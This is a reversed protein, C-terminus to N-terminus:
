LFWLGDAKMAAVMEEFDQADYRDLRLRDRQSPKSSRAILGKPRGVVGSPGYLPTAYYFAEPFLGLRLGGDCSTSVM